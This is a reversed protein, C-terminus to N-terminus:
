SSRLREQEAEDFGFAAILQLNESSPLLEVFGKKLITQSCLEPVDMKSFTEKLSASNGPERLNQLVLVSVPKDENMIKNGITMPISVGGWRANAEIWHIEMEGTPLEMLVTDLSLRGYYGLHQLVLAIRMAESTMRTQMIPDLTSRSAGVFAGTPGKVVQEFVGEIIPCGQEMDPIWIQVSPSSIVHDDWVGVLLPKGTVWGKLWLKEALFERLARINLGRLEESMLVINGLGGASTPIKIVLKRHEKALRRITTATSALCYTTFSVPVADSGLLMQALETFWTKDNARESLSPNPGTVRVPCKSAEAIKHALAWVDRTVQYPAINIGGAKRASAVIYDLAEVSGKCAASLSSSGIMERKDLKIIKVSGARVSDQIYDEFAKDSHRSILYADGDNALGLMRYEFLKASQESVLDVGRHDELYLTPGAEWGTSVGEINSQNAPEGNKAKLHNAIDLAQRQHLASLVVDHSKIIPWPTSSGYEHSSQSNIM